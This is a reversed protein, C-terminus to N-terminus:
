CLRWHGTWTSFPVFGARQAFALSRICHHARLAIHLIVVVLNSSFKLSSQPLPRAGVQGPSQPMEQCGIVITHAPYKAAVEHIPALLRTLIDHPTAAAGNEPNILVSAQALKRAAGSAQTHNM